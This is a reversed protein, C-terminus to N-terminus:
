KQAARSIWPTHRARIPIPRDEDGMWDPKPGGKIHALLDDVKDESLGEGRAYEEVIIRYLEKRSINM